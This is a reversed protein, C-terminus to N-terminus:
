MGDVCAYSVELYSQLELCRSLADFDKDPIHIHCARLGSCKRDAVNSVDVECGLHGMNIKVCREM